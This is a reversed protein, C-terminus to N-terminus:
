STGAAVATVAHPRLVERPEAAWDRQVAAHNIRDATPRENRLANKANAKERRIARVTRKIHIRIYIISKPKVSKTGHSEM